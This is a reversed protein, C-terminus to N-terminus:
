YGLPEFHGRRALDQTALRAQAMECRALTRLPLAAEAFDALDVLRHNVADLLAQREGSALRLPCSAWPAQGKISVDASSTDRAM